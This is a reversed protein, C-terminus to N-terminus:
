SSPDLAPHADNEVVAPRIVWWIIMWVAFSIWSAILWAVAWFADDRFGHVHPMALVGACSVTQLILTRRWGSDARVLLPWIAGHAGILVTFIGAVIWGDLTSTRSSGALAIFVAVLFTVSLLSSAFTLARGDIPEGSPM